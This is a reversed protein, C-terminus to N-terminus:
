APEMLSYNWGPQWVFGKRVLEELPRGNIWYELGYHTAIHGIVVVRKGAHSQQLDTLFRKMRAMADMYSEGNPFPEVIHRGREADVETSPRRTWDGYDLERLRADRIIPIGSGAFAIGATRYARRLDSCFVVDPPQQRHREGLERAQQEGRPSLDVDYHGSAVGSENDLSTAHTEYIIATMVIEM